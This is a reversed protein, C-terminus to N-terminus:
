DAFQEFTSLLSYLLCILIKCNAVLVVNAHPSTTMNSRAPQALGAVVGVGVDVGVDVGM